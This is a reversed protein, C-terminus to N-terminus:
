RERMRDQEAKYRGTHVSGTASDLPDESPPMASVRSKALCYSVAFIHRAAGLNSAELRVCAFHARVFSEYIYLVTLQIYLRSNLCQHSHFDM